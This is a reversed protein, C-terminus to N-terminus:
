STRSSPSPPWSTSATTPTSSTSSRSRSPSARVSGTGPAAPRSARSTSTSRSRGCRRSAARGSSAWSPGTACSSRSTGAYDNHALLPGAWTEDSTTGAPVDAKTRLEAAKGIFQGYEQGRDRAAKLVNVAPHQPYHAKLINHAVGTDGKAAALAMALRAFQIGKEPNDRPAVRYVTERSKSAAETGNGNVPVARKQIAELDKADRIEADLARIDDRLTDFEERETENKTRDEEACLTTIEEMRKEKGARVAELSTISATAISM